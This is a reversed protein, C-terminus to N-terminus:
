PTKQAALAALKADRRWKWLTYGCGVLACAAAAIRDFNALFFGGASGIAAFVQASDLRANM